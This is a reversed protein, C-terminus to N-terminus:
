FSSMVNKQLSLTPILRTGARPRPCVPLFRRSPLTSNKLTKESITGRLQRCETPATVWTGYAGNGLYIQNMYLHLIDEKSLNKEIRYALVTERIKRSIRREPTLFFSRAVQQTITSGGQVIRGATINKYLARMISLYDVGEHEFFNADETAIFADILHRPMRSLSVVIRREIYFEGIVQGDHSYVKTILNPRYDYLANLSPLDKTLYYYVGGGTLLALFLGAGTIYLLVRLIRM